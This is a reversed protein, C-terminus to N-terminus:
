DNGAPRPRRGYRYGFLRVPALCLTLWFMFCAIFVFMESLETGLVRHLLYAALLGVAGLVGLALWPRRMGLVAAVFALSVGGLLGHLAVGFLPEDTVLSYLERYIDPPTIAAMSCLVAVAATWELMRSLSFQLRPSSDGQPVVAVDYFRLGLLRALLLAGLVPAIGSTVLTVPFVAALRSLCALCAVVAVLRWLLTREGFAIWVAVLHPQAFLIAAFALSIWDAGVSDDAVYVAAAVLLEFVGLGVLIVDRRNM